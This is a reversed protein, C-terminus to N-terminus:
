YLRQITIDSHELDDHQKNVWKRIDKHQIVENLGMGGQYIFYYDDGRYDPRMGDNLKIILPLTDDNIPMFYM